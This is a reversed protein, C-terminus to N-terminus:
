ITERVLSRNRWDFTTDVFTQFDGPINKWGPEPGREPCANDVYVGDGNQVYFDAGLTRMSSYISYGKGVRRCYGQGGTDGGLLFSVPADDDPAPAPKFQGNMGDALGSPDQRGGLSSRVRFYYITKQTLGKLSFKATFDTESAAQAAEASRPRSFSPDTDYQVSIETRDTARAWVIASNSSVDGSSVAFVTVPPTAVSAPKQTVNSTCSLLIMSLLMCGLMSRDM